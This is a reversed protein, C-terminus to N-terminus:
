LLFKITLLYFAMKRHPMNQILYNPYSPQKELNNFLGNKLNLSNNIAEM